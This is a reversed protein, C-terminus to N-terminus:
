KGCSCSQLPCYRKMQNRFCCPLKKVHSVQRHESYRTQSERTCDESTYVPSTRNWTNIYSCSFTKKGSAGALCRQVRVDSLCLGALHSWLGPLAPLQWPCLRHAFYAAVSPMSSRETTGQAWNSAFSFETSPWNQFAYKQCFSLITSFKKREEEKWFFGKSM